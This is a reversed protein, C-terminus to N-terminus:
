ETRRLWLSEAGPPVDFGITDFFTRVLGKQCALEYSLVRVRGFIEELLRIQKQYEFWNAFNIMFEAFEGAFRERRRLELFLSRAFSEKERLVLFIEVDFGSLAAAVTELYKRRLCWYDPRSYDQLWDQGYIHRYFQEASILVTERHDVSRRVNSVFALAQAAGEPHIGSLSTSFRHHGGKVAGFVGEGDPYVLGQGRLLQRNDALARQISTTGTKHTGVHLILRPAATTM